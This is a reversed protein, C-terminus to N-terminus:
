KRRIQRMMREEARRRLQGENYPVIPDEPGQRQGRDKLKRDVVLALPEDPLKRFSTRKAKILRDRSREEAFDRDVLDSPGQVPRLEEAAARRLMKHSEQKRRRVQKRSWAPGDSYVNRHDKLLSDRKKEAPSKVKSM